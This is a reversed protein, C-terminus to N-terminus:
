PRGRPSCGCLLCHTTTTTTTTTAATTSDDITRVAPLTNRCQVQFQMLHPALTKLGVNRDRSWHGNSASRNGQICTCTRVRVHLRSTRNRVVRRGASRTVGHLNRCVVTTATARVLISGVILMLMLLLLFIIGGLATGPKWRAQTTSSRTWVSARGSAGISIRTTRAGGVYSVTTHTRVTCSGALPHWRIMGRWWGM